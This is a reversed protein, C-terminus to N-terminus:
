AQPGPRQPPPNAQMWQVARGLWEAVAPPVAARAALWIRVAGPSYGTARALQRESWGIAALAARLDAPTL